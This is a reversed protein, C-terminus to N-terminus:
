VIICFICTYLVNRDTKLKMKSILTPGRKRARGRLVLSKKKDYNNEDYFLFPRFNKIKVIIIFVFNYFPTYQLNPRITIFFFVFITLFELVAEKVPIM